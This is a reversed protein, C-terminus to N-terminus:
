KRAISVPGTANPACRVNECNRFRSFIPPVLPRPLSRSTAKVFRSLATLLQRVEGDIAIGEGMAEDPADTKHPPVFIM